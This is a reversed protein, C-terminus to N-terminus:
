VTNRTLSVYKEHSSKQSPCIDINGVLFVVRFVGTLHVMFMKLITTWSKSSGALLLEDNM